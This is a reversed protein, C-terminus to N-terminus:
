TAFRLLAQQANSLCRSQRHGTLISLEHIRELMGSGQNRVERDRLDDEFAEHLLEERAAKEHSRGDDHEM